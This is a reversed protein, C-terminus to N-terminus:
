AARRLTTRFAAPSAATATGDSGIDFVLLGVALGGYTLDDVGIWDAGLYGPGSFLQGPLRASPADVSGVLRFAQQGTELNAVTPLLRGPTAGVATRLGSLMDTGNSIWSSVVLGPAAIATQNYIVTLSSNIGPTTSTYTGAFKRGAEVGAQAQLAPLITNTVVDAILQTAQYRSTSTGAVLVDFGANYDPLLVMWTSYLGSNGSKPYIDTIHGSPHVYRMIEWLRGVAYDLRGTFAVPKMWKRTQDPPLLTSNLIGVGFRALDNTTSSLGGSSVFVDEPYIFNDLPGAPIVARHWESEPPNSSNSSSLGLPDFISGRYVQDISKGTINSIALGLLAFGIDSYAPSTWPQFTPPRSDVSEVFLDATCISTNVTSCPTFEFPDSKNVPPFGQATPDLSVEGLAQAALYSALIDSGSEPDRPVGAIQAALASPTVKDWQVIHVPDNDPHKRAFDAFDPVIDTFPRNWDADKLELLGAFVTFLKSVSALRYISDGDVKHTGNAANAVEPSTHHFQLKVAAPDHLSFLGVSFTVNKLAAATTSSFTQNKLYTELTSTVNHWGAAVLSHNSTLDTPPPYSPGSFDAVVSTVSILLTLLLQLSFHM